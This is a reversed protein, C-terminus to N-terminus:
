LSVLKQNLVPVNHQSLVTLQALLHFRQAIDDLHLLSQTLTHSHFTCLDELYQHLTTRHCAPHRFDLLRPILVHLHIDAVDEGLLLQDEVAVLEGDATVREGVIDGM